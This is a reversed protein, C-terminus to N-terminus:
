PTTLHAGAVRFDRKLNLLYAYPSSELLTRRDGQGSLAMGTLSLGVSASLALYHSGSFDFTALGAATGTILSAIKLFGTRTWVVGWGSLAKELASIAPSVEHDVIYKAERRMDELTQYRACRAGIEGLKQRLLLLEDCHKEKFSLVRDIPVDARIKFSTLAVDLFVAEARRTHAFQGGGLGAQTSAEFDQFIADHVADNTVAGIGLQAAMERALATMYVSAFVPDVNLWNLTMGVKGSDRESLFARLAWDLKEPHMRMFRDSTIRRLEEELETIRPSLTRISQGRDGGSLGQLLQLANQGDPRYVPDAKFHSRVGGSRAALLLMAMFRSAGEVASAAPPARFLLGRAELDEDDPTSPAQPGGSPMITGLKDFFLLQSRIWEPDRLRINPYFLAKVEGTM